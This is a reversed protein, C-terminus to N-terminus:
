KNTLKSAADAIHNLVNTNEFEQNRAESALASVEESVASITQISDVIEHNASTLDTITEVLTTVSETVFSANEEITAFSNKSKEASTKEDDIEGSIRKIGDTIDSLSTSIHSIMGSIEETAEKTKTSMSSVEDAVVAFGKGAEGAHAAEVNANLALINTQFAISEIMKSIKHMEAMNEQLEELLTAMKGSSEVTKEVDTILTHLDDKGQEVCQLTQKMSADIKKAADEVLATKEGIATTQLLQTQVAEATNTTGDSVEDMANKTSATSELLKSLDENITVLGKDTADMMNRIQDLKVQSNKNTTKAVWYSFLAVLIVVLDQIIANSLTTYGFRGKLGGVITIIFSEIVVGANIKLSYAADNYISIVLLLPIVFFFLMADESTFIVLTFYVAFGYGLFHKIMRTEHNKKWCIIEGIPSFFGVIITILLYGISCGGSVFRLMALLEMLIIVIMHSTMGVKNNREFESINENSKM